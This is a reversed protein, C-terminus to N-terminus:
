RGYRDSGPRDLSPMSKDVGAHRAAENLTVDSRDYLSRPVGSEAVAGGQKERRKAIRVAEPKFPSLWKSVELSLM